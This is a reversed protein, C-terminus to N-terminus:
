RQQAATTRPFALEKQAIQSARMDNIALDQQAKAQLSALKLEGTRKALDFKLEELAVKMQAVQADAQAKADQQGDVPQGDAPHGGAEANKREMAKIKRDMNTVVQQLNNVAEKVQGYIAAQAPDMALAEGHAAIHNLSAQLGPLTEMPDIQGTEVGELTQMLPPIHKQVHIVHMQQADVPVENGQMLMFNELTALCGEVSYTSDEPEQAFYDANQFGVISAVIQHLLRKQGVPDLNPYLQLMRMFGLTRAAASGAGFARFAYTSDHDISDLIEKTIGAKACRQHFEKVLPDSKPGNIILRCMERLLVDFSMYFLELPGSNGSATEEAEAETNLRNQYAEGGNKQPRFRSSSQDIMGKIEGLVPMVTMSLDPHVRQVFEVNGKILALPGFYQFALEQLDRDSGVTAWTTTAAIAADASKCLARDYFQTQAFITNGLGRIGHYTGNGFNYCFFTFAKDASDYHNNKRFLPEGGPDDRDVIVFTYSGDFEKFWGNLCKVHEFKHETLLDNNKVQRQVREMEGIQGTSSAVTARNIAKQVAPPNWGLDVAVKPDRIKDYLDTVMVDERAIAYPIAEETAPTQRPIQFDRLSAVKFRFNGPDPRYAIGVGHTDFLDIILGMGLKFGKWKRITRSLEAAITRNNAYRETTEGFETEITVLQKSSCILDLYGSNCTDIRDAMLLFNVNCNGGQGNAILAAQNYPAEGDKAAQVRVYAIENKQDGGILDKHLNRVTDASSLRSPLKPKGTEDLLTLANEIHDLGSTM